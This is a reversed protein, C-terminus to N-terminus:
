DTYFEAHDLIEKIVNKAPVKEKYKKSVKFDFLQSVALFTSTNKMINKMKENQMWLEIFRM